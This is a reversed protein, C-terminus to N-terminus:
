FYYILRFYFHSFPSFFFLSLSNFKQLRGLRIFLFSDFL